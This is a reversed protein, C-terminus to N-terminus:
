GVTGVLGKGCRRRAGRPCQEREQRLSKTKGIEEAQSERGVTRKMADEKGGSFVACVERLCSAQKM